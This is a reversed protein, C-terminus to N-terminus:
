LYSGKGFKGLFFDAIGRKQWHRGYLGLSLGEKLLALKTRVPAYRMGLLLRNRTIYYDQLSSGSGGASGGNKHWVMADPIYRIKYGARKIRESLDVDEYYLFFREDFMGIKRFVDAKIFFCCGSAFETNIPSDYQGTDVEDVGRHSGIVTSWNMIGGAYWIVRGIETKNYRSKHFEYGKEFYIKPVVVGLNEESKIGIVFQEVINKDVITDNNLVMIYSADQDLAYQIGKNNGGSFGLNEKNELFIVESFMKKLTSVSDDTSGNDVVVISLAIDKTAMQTLSRICAITNKKGNWNLVIVFVKKM